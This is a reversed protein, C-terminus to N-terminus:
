IPFLISRGRCARGFWSLLGRAHFCYAAGFSFESEPGHFFYASKSLLVSAHFFYAPIQWIWCIATWGFSRVFQVSSFFLFVYAKPLSPRLMSCATYSPFAFPQPVFPPRPLHPYRSSIRQFIFTESLSLELVTIKPVPKEITIAPFSVPQPVFPSRPVHLYRFRNKLHLQHFRFQYPSSRHHRCTGTGVSFGESFSRKQLKLM